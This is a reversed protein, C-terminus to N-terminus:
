TYQEVFELVREPMGAKFIELFSLTDLFFDTDWTYLGGLEPEFGLTLQRAEDPTLTLRVGELQKGTHMYGDPEELMEYVDISWSSERDNHLGEDWVNLDWGVVVAM